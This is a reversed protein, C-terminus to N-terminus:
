ISTSEASFGTLIHCQQELYKVSAILHSNEVFLSQVVADARLLNEVQKASIEFQLQLKEQVARLSSQLNSVEVEHEIMIRHLTREMDYQKRKFYEELEQKKREQAQLRANLHQLINVDFCRAHQQLDNRLCQGVAPKVGQPKQLDQALNCDPGCRNENNLLDGFKAGNSHQLNGRRFRYANATEKTSFQSSIPLEQGCNNLTIEERMARSIFDNPLAPAELIRDLKTKDCRKRPNDDHHALKSASEGFPPVNFAGSAFYNNQSPSLKPGSVEASVQVAFDVMSPRELAKLKTKLEVITEDKQCIEEQLQSKGREFEEELDLYQQELNYKEEIPSLRGGNKAKDVPSIMEEYETIKSILESFKEDTIKQEQEFLQREEELKAAWYDECEEYETKLLDLSRELESCRETLQKKEIAHASEAERLKSAASAEMSNSRSFSGSSRVNSDSTINACYNLSTDRTSKTQDAHEEKRPPYDRLTSVKSKTDLNNYGNDLEAIGNDFSNNNSHRKSLGLNMPKPVVLDRLSGSARMECETELESAISRGFDTEKPSHVISNSQLRDVFKCIEDRLSCAESICKANNSLVNRLQKVISEKLARIDQSNSAQLSEAENLTCPMQFTGTETHKLLLEFDVEEEGIIDNDSVCTQDETEDSQLSRTSRTNQFSDQRSDRTQYNQIHLSELEAALEDNQDRLLVVESQLKKIRDILCLVEEQQKLELNETEDHETALVKIQAVLEGNSLKLKEIQNRLTENEGELIQNEQLTNVFNNKIKHNDKQLVQIEEDKLKLAVAHMERETSLQDSLDQVIDAHRQEIQKLFNQKTQEERIHQEDIDQALTNARENAEAVDVRLKEKEGNINEIMLNLNHVEEQYYILLDRLLSMHSRITSHDVTDNLNKLEDCLITTLDALGVDSVNLGGESLLSAIDTTSSLKWVDMITNTQKFSLRHSEPIEFSHKNVELKTLDQRLENLDLTLEDCVSKRNQFIILFEDLSILGDCNKDLKEFICQSIQKPLAPIGLCNSIFCMAPTDANEKLCNNLKEWWYNSKNEDLATRINLINESSNSDILQLSDSRKVDVNNTNSGRKSNIALDIEKQVMLEQTKGLLALLSAKFEEFSISRKEPKYRQIYSRLEESHETLHLERCLSLLEDEKLETQGKSLCSNFVAFLQQEYPDNNNEGM